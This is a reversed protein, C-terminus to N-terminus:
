STIGLLRVESVPKKIMIGDKFVNEVSCLLWKENLCIPGITIPPHISPHISRAIYGSVIILSFRTSNRSGDTKLLKPKQKKGM